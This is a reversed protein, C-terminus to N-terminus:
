ASSRRKRATPSDNKLLYNDSKFVSRLSTYDFAPTILYRIILGVEL